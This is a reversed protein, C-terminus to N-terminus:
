LWGDTGRVRTVSLLMDHRPRAAMGTLRRPGAQQPRSAPALKCPDASHFTQAPAAYCRRTDSHRRAASSAGSCVVM